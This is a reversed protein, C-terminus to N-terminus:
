TNGGLVVVLDVTEAKRLVTITCAEGPAYQGIVAVLEAMGAVPEGDVAVVQDEALLGAAAAPSGAKVEGVTAMGDVDLGTIGLWAKGGPALVMTSVSATIAATPGPAITTASSTSAPGPQFALHFAFAVLVAGAAAVVFLGTARGWRMPPDAVLTSQTPSTPLPSSALESPHRWLRDEPPLPPRPEFPEDDVWDAGDV